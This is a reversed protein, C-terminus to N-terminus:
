TPTTLASPLHMNARSGIQPNHSQLGRVTTPFQPVIGGGWIVDCLSSERLVCIFNPESSPAPLSVTELKKTYKTQLSLVLRLDQPAAATTKWDPAVHAERAADQRQRTAQNCKDSRKANAAPGADLSTARYRM